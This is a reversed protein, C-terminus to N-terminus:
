CTLHLAAAVSKKERLANYRDVARPTSFAILEIGAEQLAQRTEDPIKMRGYAGQGVVLVSPAADFVAQLDATHLVHGEQRWWGEVVRDPLLVLDRDYTQGDVVIRGFRYSEIEPRAM